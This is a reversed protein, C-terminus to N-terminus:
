EDISEGKLLLSIRQEIQALEKKSNEYEISGTVFLDSMINLKRKTLEDFLRKQEPSLKINEM